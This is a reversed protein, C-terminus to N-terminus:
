GRAKLYEEKWRSVRELCTALGERHDTNGWFQPDHEWLSFMTVSPCRRGMNSVRLTTGNKASNIRTITYGVGDLWQEQREFAARVTADTGFSTLDIRQGDKEAWQHHWNGRLRGGFLAVALLSAFKCSGATGATSFPQNMEVYWKEDLFLRARIIEEDTVPILTEGALREAIEDVLSENTWRKKM